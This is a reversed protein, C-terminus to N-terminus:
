RRAEEKGPQAASREQAASLQLYRPTIDLADIWGADDGAHEQALIACAYGRQIPGAEIAFVRSQDAIASFVTSKTYGLTDTLITDNGATNSVFSEVSDLRDPTLRTIIGDQRSFRAWFVLNRRGDLAVCLNGNTCPWAKAIAELSSVELFRTSSDFFLGKVFAIGIRLGTFSGPGVSVGCRDIDRAVIGHSNLLFSVAGCIHEAHSHKIYRSITQAARGDSLLALGLETSSTDIGLVWSL